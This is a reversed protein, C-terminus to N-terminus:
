SPADIQSLYARYAEDFADDESITLVDRPPFTPELWRLVRWATAEGVFFTPPHTTAPELTLKLMYRPDGETPTPATIEVNVISSRKIVKFERQSGNRCIILNGVIRFPARTSIM